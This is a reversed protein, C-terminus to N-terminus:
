EQEKKVIKYNTNTRRGTAKVETAPAVEGSETTKNNTEFKEAELMDIAKSVDFGTKNKLAERKDYDKMPVSVSFKKILDIVGIPAYDLCDLFADLSGNDILDIIDKESMYYENETHLNLNEIAKDEYIQLFNEMLPRGGSQYSLKELESYKVRKEEGPAFERRIGEEPIRYCVMSASRNKVILMRDAM